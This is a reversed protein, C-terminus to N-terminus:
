DRWTLDGLKILIADLITIDNYGAEKMREVVHKLTLESNHLYDEIIDCAESVQNYIIYGGDLFSIWHRYDGNKDKFEIDIYTGDKIYGRSKKNATKYYEDVYCDQSLIETVTVRTGKCVIEDGPKLERTVNKATVKM